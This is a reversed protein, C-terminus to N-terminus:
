DGSDIVYSHSCHVCTYRTLCRGVSESKYEHTCPTGDERLPVQGTPMGYMMQGGCNTCKVTDDSERYNYWGYKKGHERLNDPCPMQGSGNCVPCVGTKSMENRMQNVM